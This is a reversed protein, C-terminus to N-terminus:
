MTKPRFSRVTIITSCQCCLRAVPPALVSWVASVWPVRRQGPLHAQGIARAGFIARQAGEAWPLRGNEPEVLISTRIEGGIVAMREGPDMWFTNYGGVDPEADAPAATLDDLYSDGTQGIRAAEEATITLQGNFQEGRELMTVTAISYVGQLNPAGFSTRPAVYDQAAAVQGLAVAIGIM